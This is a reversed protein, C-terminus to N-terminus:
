KELVLGTHRDVSHDVGDINIVKESSSTNFVVWCNEYERVRFDDVTYAQGIPEGPEIEDCFDPRWDDNVNFIVYTDDFLMAMAVTTQALKNSLNYGDEGAQLLNFTFGQPILYDELIILVEGLNQTLAGWNFTTPGPIPQYLGEFYKGSLPPYKENPQNGILEFEPYANQLIQLFLNIGDRWAINVVSDFSNVGQQDYDDQGNWDADLSSIWGLYESMWAYDRLTNDVLMFDILDLNTGAAALQANINRAIYEPYIEGNVEPGLISMNMLYMEPNTWYMQKQTHATNYVFFSQGTGPQDYDALLEDRLGTQWPRNILSQNGKMIDQPNTYPGVIQNPNLERLKPVTQGVILEIDLIVMGYLAMERIQADGPVAPNRQFFACIKATINPRIEIQDDGPDDGSNDGPDDGSNDGPLNTGGPTSTGGGATGKCGM